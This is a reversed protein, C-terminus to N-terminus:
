MFHESGNNKTFQLKGKYGKSSHKNQAKGHEGKERSNEEM